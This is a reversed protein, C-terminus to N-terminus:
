KLLGEIKLLAYASISPADKIEGQVIMKELDAVTFKSMTMGMESVELSQSGKEFDTALFIHFGQNCYGYAEYFFGIEQWNKARLGAEELLEKQAVEKASTEPKEEYSGQPFEWFSKGVPYRFQRVLYFHTGDFPIILAFDPKEVIGYIGKKGNAFEVEDEYVSMWKNKYKPIRSLQKISM